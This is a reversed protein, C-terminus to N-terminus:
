CGPHGLVAIAICFALGIFLILGADRVLGVPLSMM